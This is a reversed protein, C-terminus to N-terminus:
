QGLNRRRQSRNFETTSVTQVPHFVYAPFKSSPRRAIQLSATTTDYTIGDRLDQVFGRLATRVSSDWSGDVQAAESLGSFYTRGRNPREGTYATSVLLANGGAMGGTLVNGQLNGSTFPVQVSYSIHDVDVFSVTLDDLFWNSVMHDDVYTNWLERMEDAFGQLWGSDELMNDFAFVNAQYKDFLTQNCSVLAYPM